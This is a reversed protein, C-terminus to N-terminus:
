KQRTIQAAASGLYPSVWRDEKAGLPVTGAPPPAGIRYSVLRPGEALRRAAEGLAFALAALRPATPPFADDHTEVRGQLFAGCAAEVGEISCHAVAALYADVTADTISSQSSPYGALM